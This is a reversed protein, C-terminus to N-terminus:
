FVYKLNLKLKIPKFKVCPITNILSLYIEKLNIQYICTLIKKNKQLLSNFKITLSMLYKSAYVM